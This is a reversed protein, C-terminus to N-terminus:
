GTLVSPSIIPYEDAYHRRPSEGQFAHPSGKVRNVGNSPASKKWYVSNFVLFELLRRREAGNPQTNPTRSLRRCISDISLHGILDGDTNGPHVPLM